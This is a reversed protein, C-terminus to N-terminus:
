ESFDHESIEKAIEKYTEEKWLEQKELREAFQLLENKQEESLDFHFTLILQVIELSWKEIAITLVDFYDNENEVNALLFRMSWVLDEEKFWRRKVELPNTYLIIYEKLIDVVNNSKCWICEAHYQITGTM